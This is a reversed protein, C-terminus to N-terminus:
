YTSFEIPRKIKKKSWCCNFACKWEVMFCFDWNGAFKHCNVISCDDPLLCSSFERSNSTLSRVGSSLTDLLDCTTHLLNIYKMSTAHMLRRHTRRCFEVRYRRRFFISLTVESFSCWVVGCCLLLSVNRYVWMTLYLACLLLHHRHRRRPRWGFRLAIFFFVASQSPWCM